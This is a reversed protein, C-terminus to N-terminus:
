CKFCDKREDNVVAGNYKTPVLGAVNYKVDHGVLTVASRGLGRQEGGRIKRVSRESDFLQDFSVILM